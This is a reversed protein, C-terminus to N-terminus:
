ITNYTQLYDKQKCTLEIVYVDPNSSKNEVMIDYVVMAEGKWTITVTNNVNIVPLRSLFNLTKNYGSIQFKRIINSSASATVDGYPKEVGVESLEYEEAFPVTKLYTEYTFAALPLHGIMISAVSVVASVKLYDSVDTEWCFVDSYIPNGANPTVKFYYKGDDKGTTTAGTLIIQSYVTGAANTLPNVVCSGAKISVDDMDYMIYTASALTANIIVQFDPVDDTVFHHLACQNDTNDYQRNAKTYYWGLTGYSYIM